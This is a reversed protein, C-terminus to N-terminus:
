PHGAEDIRAALFGGGAELLLSIRPKIVLIGAVLVEILKSRVATREGRAIWGAVMQSEEVNWDETFWATASM